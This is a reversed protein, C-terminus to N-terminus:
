RGKYQKGEDPKVPKRMGTHFFHIDLCVANGILRNLQCNDHGTVKVQSVHDPLCPQDFPDVQDVAQLGSMIM